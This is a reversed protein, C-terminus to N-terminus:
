PYTGRGKDHMDATKHDDSVGLERQNRRLQQSDDRADGDPKGTQPSSEPPKKHKATDKLPSSHDARKTM